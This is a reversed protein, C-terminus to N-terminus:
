AHHRREASGCFNGTLGSPTQTKGLLRAEHSCDVWLILANQKTETGPAPIRCCPMALGSVQDGSLQRSIQRSQDFANGPRSPSIFNFLWPHRRQPMAPSPRIRIFRDTCANSPV